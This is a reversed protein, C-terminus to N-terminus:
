RKLLCEIMSVFLSGFCTNLDVSIKGGSHSCFYQEVSRYTMKLVVLIVRDRNELSRSPTQM